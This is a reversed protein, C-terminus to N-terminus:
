QPHRPDGLFAKELAARDVSVGYKSRLAEIWTREREKSAFDQYASTVEPRAEEFTKTRVSDKALVKIISWGAGNRFPDTIEGVNLKSARTALDNYAFTQFGWVGRKEKYGARSTMDEAVDQFEEGRELRQTAVKRLSDSTVYIEAFNVREPWKYEEARPAHFERLLSDNVAIRQWIEDQEIRYLLIGDRYEDMLQAFGPHREPARRAHEELVVIEVLRDLMGAVGTPTLKTTEFEPTAALRDLVDQVSLTKGGCLLLAADGFSANPLGYWASDATTKGSDPFITMFLVEVTDVFSVHYQSKLSRLYTAYDAQYRTQQYTQKLSREAEAFPPVSQFGTVKFIYVGNPVFFPESVSDVKMSYLLQAIDPPIRSREFYGIDGGQRATNQDQSYKMAAEAFDMGARIQRYVSWMTDRTAVTDEPSPYYRLVFSTRVSGKSPQRDTVKIVHYGFQTRVPEQTMEGAKLRYCADEFPGVMRGSSFYGLDGKNMAASQDGSYRIALSDFPATKAEKIISMARNWAALTDAPSAQESVRILIHSARIEERKREYIERVRPEVLEKEIMYAQAVSLRYGALENQISTDQLLGRELAEKVKLRFKVLLDLFRQREEITAKKGADWGGNNKAYSDEFQPLTLPEDGITAVVPVASGCGVAFLGLTAFVAIQKLM